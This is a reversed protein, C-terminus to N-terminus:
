KRRRPQSLLIATALNSYTSEATRNYAKVQYSYLVGPVVEHDIFTTSDAGLAAVEVFNAGDSSREIAFGDENASNDNWTLTIGGGRAERAVLDLPRAVSGATNTGADIRIISALSPVGASNILFLLYHGPPSVNPDAPATVTLGNRHRTFSLYNISQSEDFGHTVSGTRLWTVKEISARDPTRVLFAEGYTVVKRVSSIKPRPGRFLYPPSFIEATKEVWGGGSVLVRGDPLLLAVTHYGRYIRHPALQTWSETEPDWLEPVFVGATPDDFATSNHGGVVFVSGDALLTANAHRRVHSMPQITRWSPAPSNLDIVEGSATPPDGGGIVLIKGPAYMVASGLDRDAALPITLPSWAGTGSTDLYTTEYGPGAYFTNGNPALFMWPYLRISRLAGTLPRWTQTSRQWVEPLQNFGTTYDPYVLGSIALVDGNALVTTTPYWRGAAMDPLRAWTNTAPDFVSAYPFGVENAEHGGASFMRGDALSTHGACFMNYEPEAVQKFRNKIPDWLFYGSNWYWMLVKGTPLLHAHAAVVPLSQVDSWRGAIAPDDQLASAPTVILFLGIWLCLAWSRWQPRVRAGLSRGLM